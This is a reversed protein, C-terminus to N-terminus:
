LLREAIGRMTEVGDSMTPQQASLVALGITCSGRELRVGQNVVWGDRRRLWGSKFLALYGARRAVRITGWTQSRQIAGLLERAYARFRVPLVAHLQRWLRAQDSATLLSLGWSGGDRFHRMGAARAVGEMGAAGVRRYTEKAAVNSSRTIMAHHRKRTAADLSTGQTAHRRLDAALLMAKVLSASRFPVGGDVSRLRGRELVAFAVVGPRSRVYARASSFAADTMCAPTAARSSQPESSRAAAAPPVATLALLGALMLQPVRRVTDDDDCTM